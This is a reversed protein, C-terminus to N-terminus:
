GKKIMLLQGSDKFVPIFEKGADSEMFEKAAFWGGALAPTHGQDELVIIGYSNIKSYTKQLASQVAEYMDVDINCLAIGNQIEPLSDDIINSKIIYPKIQFGETREEVYKISTDTHTGKWYTDKSKEAEAYTFGEYTDLLFVERSLGSAEMYNLVVRASGAKYVGIEVYAGQVNRTIELCEILCEYDGLAFKGPSSLYEEKLIKKCLDNKHFYRATPYFIRPVTYKCKNRLNIKSIELALKEDSEFALIYNINVDEGDLDVMRSIMTKPLLGAMASENDTVIKLIYDPYDKKAKILAEQVKDRGYRSTELDLGNHFWARAKNRATNSEILLDDLIINSIWKKNETIIYKKLKHLNNKLM